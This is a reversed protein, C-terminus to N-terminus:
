LEDGGVGSGAWETVHNPHMSPWEKSHSNPTSTNTNTRLSLMCTARTLSHANATNAESHKNLLLLSLIPGWLCRQHFWFFCCCIEANKNCLVSSLYQSQNSFSAHLVAATEECGECVGKKKRFSVRTINKLTIIWCWQWICINRNCFYSRPGKTVFNWKRNFSYRMWQANKLMMSTQLDFASAHFLSQRSTLTLQLHKDNWRCELRVCSRSNQVADSHPQPYLSSAGYSSQSSILLTHPACVDPFLEFHIM